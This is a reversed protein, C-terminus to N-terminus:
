EMEDAGCKIKDSTVERGSYIPTVKFINENLYKIDVTMIVEPLDLGLFTYLHVLDM